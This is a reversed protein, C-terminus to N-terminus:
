NPREPCSASRRSRSGAGAVFAAHLDTCFQMSHSYKGVHFTNCNYKRRDAQSCQNARSAAALRRARLFFGCRWRLRDRFAGTFLDGHRAPRRHRHFGRRGSIRYRCRSSGVGRKRERHRREVTGCTCCRCAYDGHHWALAKVDIDVEGHLEGKLWRGTDGDFFGNLFLRVSGLEVFVIEDEVYLSGSCASAGVGDFAFEFERDARRRGTIRFHHRNFDRQSHLLERM